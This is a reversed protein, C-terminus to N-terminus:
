TAPAESADTVELGLSRLLQRVVARFATRDGSRACGRAGELAALLFIAQDEAPGEFRVEHGARADELLQAVELYSWARLKTLREVISVPLSDTNEDFAGHPCVNHTGDLLAAEAGAFFARLAIGPSPAREVLRSMMVEANARYFEILAVGLTEKTPFHHHISAKRIGLSVSLDTYSFASFSKRRLLKASLELIETKRKSM